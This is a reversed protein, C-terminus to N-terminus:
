RTTSDHRPKHPWYPPPLSCQCSQTTHWSHAGTPHATAALTLLQQFKSSQQIWLDNLHNYLNHDLHIMGRDRTQSLSTATCLADLVANETEGSTANLSPPLKFNPKTKSRCVTEFHNPRGCHACTKGYAPCDNKKTKSPFNKGHGRKRCYSCTKNKYHIKNNKLDEQKGPRYQSRNADAGQSELLLGASRKSAEKAEIFQFLEDLTLDQNEQWSPRTPNRQRCAHM